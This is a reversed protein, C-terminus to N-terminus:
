CRGGRNDVGAKYGNRHSATIYAGPPGEGARVMVREPSWCVRKIWEEHCVRKIWEIPCMVVVCCM